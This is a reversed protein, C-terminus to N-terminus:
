KLREKLIKLYSKMPTLQMRLLSKQKQELKHFETSDIFLKLKDVKEKLEGKEKILRDRYSM